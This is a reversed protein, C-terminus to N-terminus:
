RPLIPLPTPASQDETALRHNSRNTWSALREPVFTAPGTSKQANAKNVAARDHGNPSPDGNLAKSDPM